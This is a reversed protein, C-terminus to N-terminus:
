RLELQKPIYVHFFEGDGGAIRHGVVIRLEGTDTLIHGRVFGPGTYGTGTKFVAQGWTMLSRIPTDQM